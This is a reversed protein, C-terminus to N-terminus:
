YAHQELVAFMRSSTDNEAVASRDVVMDMRSEASVKYSNNGDSLLAQAVAQIRFQDSRTTILNCIKGFLEPSVGRVDLVDSVTLYPKLTKGGSVPIGHRIYKALAPTICPLSTLIRESATNINIKGEMEVPTLYAYDFWAFGSCEDRNLSHSTLQLKIGGSPSIHCTEIIGCYFGDVKQSRFRGARVRTVDRYVDERHQKEYALPLQEFRRADYNYVAVEVEANHNEELFETTKISDNLGFIYLGYSTKKLNKNKWEWTGSDGDTRTYYMATSYGPGICFLDGPQVRLQSYGPLSYGTVDLSNGTSAKITFSEGNLAGSLM